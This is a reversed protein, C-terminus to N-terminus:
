DKNRRRSSFPRVLSFRQKKLEQEQELNVGSPTPTSMSRQMVEQAPPEPDKKPRPSSLKRLFSFKQTKLTRGQPENTIPEAPKDWSVTKPKISIIAYEDGVNIREIVSNADSKFIDSTKKKIKRMFSPKKKKKSTPMSMSAEGPVTSGATSTPSALEMSSTPDPALEDDDGDDDADDDAVNHKSKSKSLMKVMSFKGKELKTSETIGEQDFASSTADGSVVEFAGGAEDEDVVNDTQRKSKSRRLNLKM